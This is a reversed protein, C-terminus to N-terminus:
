TLRDVHRVPPSSSVTTGNAGIFASPRFPAGAGIAANVSLSLPVPAAAPAEQVQAVSSLLVVSPPQSTLQFLPAGTPLPLAPPHPRYMRAPEMAPVSPATPGAADSAPPPLPEAGVQPAPPPPALPPSLPALQSYFPREGAPQPPSPNSHLAQHSTSCPFSADTIPALSTPSFVRGSSSTSCLHTDGAAPAIGVTASMGAAAQLAPPPPPPREELDAQSMAVLTSESERPTWDRIARSLVGWTPVLLPATKDGKIVGYWLCDGLADWTQPDFATKVDVPFGHAKAWDLLIRLSDQSVAIEKHSIMNTWVSLIVNEEVSLQNGM